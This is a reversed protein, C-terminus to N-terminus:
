KNDYQIFLFSVEFQFTKFFHYKHIKKTKIEKNLVGQHAIFVGALIIPAKIALKTMASM